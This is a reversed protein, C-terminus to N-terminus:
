KVFAARIAIADPMREAHWRIFPVGAGSLALTKVQDAKVRLARGHTWDDLEVAAVITLDSKLCVVFDISKQSIKNFWAKRASANVGRRVELIQSLSVQSFVVCEPMADVLLNYFLLETDTLLNKRSFPWPESDAVAVPRFRLFIVVGVFLVSFLLVVFLAMSGLLSNM